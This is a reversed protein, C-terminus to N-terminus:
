SIEIIFFLEDRVSASSCHDREQTNAAIPRQDSAADQKWQDIFWSGGPDKHLIYSARPKRRIGIGRGSVSQPRAAGPWPESEIRRCASARRHALLSQFTSRNLRFHGPDISAAMKQYALTM